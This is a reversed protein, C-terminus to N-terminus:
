YHRWAAPSWWKACINRLHVHQPNTYEPSDQLLLSMTILLPTWCHNDLNYLITDILIWLFNLQKAQTPLRYNKEKKGWDYLCYCCCPAESLRGCNGLDFGHWLCSWAGAWSRWGATLDSRRCCRTRVGTRPPSRHSRSRVSCWRGPRKSHTIKGFICLFPPKVCVASTSSPKCYCRLISM